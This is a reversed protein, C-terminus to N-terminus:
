QGLKGTKNILFHFFGKAMYYIKRLRDREFGTSVIVSFVFRIIKGSDPVARRYRFYVQLGNRVQYYKRVHDHQYVFIERGCISRYELNGFSHPMLVHNLTIVKYGGAIARCYYEVDVMDIQLDDQFPGLAQWAALNLLNGTTMAYLGESTAESEDPVGVLVGGKGLHRPSIIATQALTASSGAFAILQQLVANTMCSDQDMTLLWNSGDAIALRAGVNLAHAIGQNGHNDIYDIKPHQLQRRLESDKRESNDVVYLKDVANVYSAINGPLSADPHYAVVVAAIHLGTRNSM